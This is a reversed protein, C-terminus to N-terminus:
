IILDNKLYEIFRLEQKLLAVLVSKCKQQKAMHNVNLELPAPLEPDCDQHLVLWWAITHRKGTDHLNGCIITRYETNVYGM